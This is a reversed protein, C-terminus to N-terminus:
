EKVSLGASPNLWVTFRVQVPAGDSAVQVSVGLEAARFPVADAVTPTAIVVVAGDVANSAGGAPLNWGGPMVPKPLNNQSYPINPSALKAVRAAALFRRAAYRSPAHKSRAISHVAQPPELVGGGM